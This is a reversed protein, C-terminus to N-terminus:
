VLAVGRGGLHNIKRLSLNTIQPSNPLHQWVNYNSRFKNNAHKIMQHMGTVPYWIIHRSPCTQYVQILRSRSKLPSISSCVMDLKLMNWDTQQMRWIKGVPKIWKNVFEPYVKKPGMKPGEVYGFLLFNQTWIHGQHHQLMGALKLLKGDCPFFIGM